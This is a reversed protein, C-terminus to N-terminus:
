NKAVVISVFLSHPYVTDDAILCMMCTLRDTMLESSTGFLYLRSRTLLLIPAPQVKENGM